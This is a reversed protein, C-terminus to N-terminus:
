LISSAPSRPHEENVPMAAQRVPPIDAPRPRKPYPHGSKDWYEEMRGRYSDWVSELDSRSHWELNWEHNAPGPPDGQPLKVLIHHIPENQPVSCYCPSSTVGEVMPMAVRNNRLTKLREVDRKAIPPLRGWRINHETSRVTFYRVCAPFNPNRSPLQVVMRGRMALRGLVLAPQERFNGSDDREDPDVFQIYEGENNQPLNQPLNEPLNQPLDQQDNQPDNQELNEQARADQMSVDSAADINLFRQGLRNELYDVLVEGRLHWLTDCASALQRPPVALLDRVLGDVMQANEPGRLHMYEGIVERMTVWPSRRPGWASFRVPQRIETGNINLREVAQDLRRGAEGRIWGWYVGTRDELDIGPARGLWPRDPQTCYPCRANEPHLLRWRNMCSQGVLHQCDLIEMPEADDIVPELGEVQLETTCFICRALPRPGRRLQLYQEINPWYTEDVVLDAAQGPAFTRGAPSSPPEARPASSSPPASPPYSSPGAPSASSSPGALAASTLPASSPSSSPRVPGASASPQASIASSPPAPLLFTSSPAGAASAFPEEPTVSATPAPSLSLSPPAPAPSISPEAPPAPASEPAPSLSSSEPAPSLSSSAPAPSPSSSPEAPLATAPPPAATSSSAQAPSAPLPRSMLSRTREVARPNPTRPNRLTQPSRPMRPSRTARPSSPGGGDRSQNIIEQDSASVM